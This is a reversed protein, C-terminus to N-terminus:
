PLPELGKPDFSYDASVEEEWDESLQEDTAALRVYKIFCLPITVMRGKKNIILDMSNRELLAGRLVRNSEWPDQTQIIVDAGINADFQDQRDLIIPNNRPTTLLVEHRALVKLEDEVLDLADLISKSITSIKLPDVFYNLMSKKETPENEYYEEQEASFGAIDERTEQDLPLKERERDMEVEKDITDDEDEEERPALVNREREDDAVIDRKWLFEEEEDPIIDEPEPNDPNKYVPPGATEIIVEPGERYEPVSSFNTDITVVVTTLYWTVGVVTAGVNAASLTIIGEAEKRWPADIPDECGLTEGRRWPQHPIPHADEDYYLEPIDKPDIMEPPENEEEPTPGDLDVVRSQKRKQYLHTHSYFGPKINPIFGNSTWLFFLLLRHM